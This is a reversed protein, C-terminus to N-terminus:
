SRIAKGAEAWTKRRAAAEEASEPKLTEYQARPPQFSQRVEPNPRKEPPMALGRFDQVFFSFSWGASVTRADSKGLFESVIRDRALWDEARQDTPLSNLLDGFNGLAKADSTGQGYQRGRIEWYRVRFYSLWDYSTKCSPGTVGNCGANGGPDRGEPDLDRLSLSGPDPRENTVVTTVGNSSSNRRANGKVNSRWNKLRKAGSARKAELEAHSPNYDLFDHVEYRDGHDHMLKADLLEQMANSTMEIRARASVLALDYKPFFGDTEGKSCHLIAAMHLHQAMASVTRVKRNELYDDDFKAWM